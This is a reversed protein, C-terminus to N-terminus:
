SLPQETIPNASDGLTEQLVTALLIQSIVFGPNQLESLHLFLFVPRSVPASKVRREKKPNEPSEKGAEQKGVGEFRGSFVGNEPVM